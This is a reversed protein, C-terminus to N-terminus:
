TPSKHNLTTNFRHVASWSVSPITATIRRIGHMKEKATSSPCASSTIKWNQLNEVVGNYRDIGKDTAIWVDGNKAQHINAIKNSSLGNETTLRRWVEQSSSNITLLLFLIQLKRRFNM